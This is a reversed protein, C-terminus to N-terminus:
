LRWHDVRPLSGLHKLARPKTKISGNPVNIATIWPPLKIGALTKATSIDDREMVLIVQLLNKPYDLQRLHTLLHSMMACKKFLPVMISIEPLPADTTRGRYKLSALAGHHLFLMATALKLAMNAILTLTGWLAFVLFTIAPAFAGTLAVLAIL